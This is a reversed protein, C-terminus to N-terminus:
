PAGAPKGGPAKEGAAPEDQLSAPRRRAYTRRLDALNGARVIELHGEPGFLLMFGETRATTDTYSLNASGADAVPVSVDVNWGRSRLGGYALAAGGDAGEWVETPAGMVDLVDGLHTSGITFSSVIEAEPRREIIDREFQFMVCGTLLGAAATIAVLGIVSRTSM